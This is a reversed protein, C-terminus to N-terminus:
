CGPRTIRPAPSGTPLITRLYAYEADCFVAPGLGGLVAREMFPRDGGNDMLRNPADGINHVEEEYPNALGLSHGIEHALTGGILNGLVYIACGIKAKRDSGPCTTGEVLIPVGSAVDASTVPSGDQDARFPDFIKDFMVDAGSAMKAFSGPHKSFAMLSRLFVGGYGAYNDQQTEANVGGLRDHLRQNGNDKGPTNDYGFYGRNNPDVGVLAVDSFLAFDTVPETRFEINVGAYAEACVALIRERITQDVARLGFDRLAEVYTPQFDLHVVQKMPAFDLTISTTKGRVLDDGYSIVPTLQGEFRGTSRRLDVTHGLADDSNLVYRVLRGEVFDPLVSLTIPTTAPGTMTDITLEGVLELETFGDAIGGVFGGGNVFVYQGLSAAPPDITFIQPSVMDYAVDHAAAAIPELGTQKNIVTVTGAFSGPKIGAIAPSFAFETRTRDLPDDPAMPLELDAVPVCAGGTALTFCGSVMAVTIGEDGGLLFGSGEVAIKDNVFIVGSSTLSSAVPTLVTRFALEVPIPESDYLTEDSTALVEITATGTFDGEGGLEGIRENDITLTLTNFDVFAAPWKVDVNRGGITGALHLRTDGWMADVFSAGKVILRTGPIVTDPAVQAIALGELGPDRTLETGCSAISVLSMAVVLTRLGGVTYRLM